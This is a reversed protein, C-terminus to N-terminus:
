FVNSVVSCHGSLREFCGLLLMCTLLEFYWLLWFGGAAEWFVWAVVCCCM